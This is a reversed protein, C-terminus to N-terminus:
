SRWWSAAHRATALMDIIAYVEALQTQAVSVEQLLAHPNREHLAPLHWGSRAHPVFGEWAHKVQHQHANNPLSKHLRPMSLM